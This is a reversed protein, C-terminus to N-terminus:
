ESVAAEVGFCGYVDAGWAQDPLAGRMQLWWEPHLAGLTLLEVPEGPEALVLRGSGDHTLEAVQTPAANETKLMVTAAGIFSLDERDVPTILLEELRVELRSGAPLNKLDPTIDAFAFQKEAELEPLDPSAPLAVMRFSGQQGCVRDVQVSAYLPDCGLVGSAACLLALTSRM